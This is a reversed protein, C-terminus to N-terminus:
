WRAIRDLGRDKLDLHVFTGYVGIGKVGCKIAIAVLRDRYLRDPTAVDIALGHTHAGDKTGGVNQNHAVCRYFSNVKMPEDMAQRVKEIFLLM